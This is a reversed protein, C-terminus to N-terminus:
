KATSGAKTRMRISYLGTTATIFLTQRDTGCFSVNATWREGPVDIHEIQKGSKDFVTVGNGTLYINGESDITMGDSGLEAAVTRNSLEGNAAVDFRYTKKGRIDAVYLTKGDATGVIGNPQQMDSVVRVLRSRDASLFYVHQGDQPMVDYSWWARKYFPDTFYIAGDPRVWVDNPGNLGKGQYQNLVVTVKGDPAISWLATKEDACALLNGKADFYMGNARGAPQMFTSLKGDTSWKLIRDNPQDTFFLNGARDCTPGETFAFDGALKEVIAGPAVVSAAGQALVPAAALSLLLGFAASRAASRM